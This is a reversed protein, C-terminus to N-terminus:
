AEGLLQASPKGRALWSGVRGFHLGFALVVTSTGGLIPGLVAPQTLAGIVADPFSTAVVHNRQRLASRALCAGGRLLQIISYLQTGATRSRAVSYGDTSVAV